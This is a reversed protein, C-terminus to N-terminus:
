SRKLLFNMIRKQSPFHSRFNFMNDYNVNKKEIDSYGEIQTALNPVVIYWNDRRQLNKWYQDIAYRSPNKTEIFLKLGEEFNHLLTKYYSNSVLYGTTTQCEELKSNVVIANTGGLVIVDYKLETLEKFKLVNTNFNNWKLDDEVILVNKWNNDIAMKLVEIHSKTCGVAGNEDKIANFRIIKESPFVSLEKEIHTKRDTRHELNIYVVKDVINFCDFSFLYTLYFWADGFIDTSEIISSNENNLIRKYIVQDKGHPNKNLEELYLRSFTTWALKDGALVGGGITDNISLCTIKGNSVYKSTQIFNGDRTNRFCGIDCWVYIDSSVLKIAELVFEQKAAWIAYLEPSHYTEPDINNFERWVSMQRESMMDFSNFSRFIITTRKTKFINMQKEMEKPCFCLIDCKVSRFFHKIWETYTDHSHKSKLLPYYATVLLM